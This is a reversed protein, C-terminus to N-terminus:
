EVTIYTANEAGYNDRHCTRTCINNKITTDTRGKLGHHVFAAWDPTYSQKSSLISLLKNM